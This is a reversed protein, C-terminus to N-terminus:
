CVYLHKLYTYRFPFISASFLGRFAPLAAEVQRVTVGGEEGAGERGGVGDSWHRGEESKRMERVAVDGEREPMDGRVVVLPERRCGEGEEGGEWVGEMGQEEDTLLLALLMTRGEEAEQGREEQKQENVRGHSHYFRSSFNSSPSQAEPLRGSM